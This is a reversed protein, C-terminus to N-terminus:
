QHVMFEEVGCIEMDYLISIDSLVKNLSDDKDCLAIAVCPVQICMYHLCLYVDKHTKLTNNINILSFHFCTNLARVSLEPGVWSVPYFLLM